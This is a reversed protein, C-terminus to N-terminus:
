DDPFPEVGEDLRRSWAFLSPVVVLKDHAVGDESIVTVIGANLGALLRLEMPVDDLDPDPPLEDPDFDIM